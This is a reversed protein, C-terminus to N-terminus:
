FTSHLLNKLSDWTMIKVPNWAVRLSFSNNKGCLITENVALPGTRLCQNIQAFPECQVASPAGQDAPLPPTSFAHPLLPLTEWRKEACWLGQLQLALEKEGRQELEGLILLLMSELFLTDGFKLGPSFHWKQAWGLQVSDSYKSGPRSIQMKGLKRLPNKQMDLLSFCERPLISHFSALM